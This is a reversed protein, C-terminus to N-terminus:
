LHVGDCRALNNNNNNNNNDDDNDKDDDDGNDDDDDNNMLRNILVYALELKSKTFLTVIFRSKHTDRSYTSILLLAKPM